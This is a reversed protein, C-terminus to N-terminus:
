SCGSPLGENPICQGSACDSGVACEGGLGCPSCGGGCDTDTELGDRTGDDCTTVCTGGRCTSNPGCDSNVICGLGDACRECPGSGGCDIDTEDSNLVLDSCTAAACTHPPISCVGSSCDAATGCGVGAACDYGFGGSMGSVTFNNTGANYTIIQNGSGGPNDNILLVQRPNNPAVAATVALARGVGNIANAIRAAIMSSSVNASIDIIVTDPAPPATPSDFQFTVRPHIGDSLLFVEGNVFTAAGGVGVTISGSASAPLQALACSASCSGCASNNFDDCAEGAITVGDGCTAIPVEPGGLDPATDLSGPADMGWPSDLNAADQGGDVRGAGDAGSVDGGAEVTSGDVDGAPGDRELASGDPSADRGPKAGTYPDAVRSGTVCAGTECTEGRMCTKRACARDLHLLLIAPRGTQFSTTFSQSVVDSGLLRAVAIVTVSGPQPMSPTFALVVPLDAGSRLTIAHVSPPLTSSGDAAAAASGGILTVVIQDVETGVALDSDVNVVLATQDATSRCGAVLVTVVLLPLALGLLERESKFFSLATM